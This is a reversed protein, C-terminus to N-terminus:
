QGLPVVFNEGQVRGQLAKEPPTKGEILSMPVVIADRITEGPGVHVDDALVAREIVAHRGVQVDDWLVSDVIRASASIQNHKGTVVSAGNEKLMEVSIDLYRQLTSLERWRGESVNAAIREGNAIAQPYVDTTSHSFV